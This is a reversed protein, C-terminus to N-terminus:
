GKFVLIRLTSGPQVPNSLYVNAKNLREIVSGPPLINQDLAPKTPSFLKISYQAGSTADIIGLSIVGTAILEDTRATGLDISLLDYDSAVLGHALISLTNEKAVIDRIESLTTEKAVTDRIESLTSEKALNVLDGILVMAGRLKRFRFERGIILYLTKGIESKDWKLTLFRFYVETDYYDSLRLWFPSYDFKVWV